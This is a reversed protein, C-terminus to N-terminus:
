RKRTMPHRFRGSDGADICDKFIQLYPEKAFRDMGEAASDRV